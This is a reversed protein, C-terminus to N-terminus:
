TRGERPRVSDLERLITEGLSTIQYLRGKRRDPTLCVALRNDQLEKLAHSVHSIPTRLTASIRSPTSRGEKLTRLVDRRIESSLLFGVAEWEPKEPM